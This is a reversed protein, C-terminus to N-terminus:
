AWVLADMCNPSPDGPLWLCMEDERQVSIEWMRGQMVEVHVVEAIFVNQGAPDLIGVPLVEAAHLEKLM